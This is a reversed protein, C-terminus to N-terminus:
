WLKFFLDQLEDIVMMDINLFTNRYEQLLKSYSIGGSKGTVHQLFDETSTIANTTTINDTNSIDTNSENDYKTQLNDTRTSDGTENTANTLYRMEDVNTLGGQPTDSYKNWDDSQTNQTGTYRRTSDDTHETSGTFVDRKTGNENSSNDKDHTTTLDVDYLPNFELLESRYLQNYYPMIENMTAELRLKWLGYTEESIERTYYHRLIKIELPLRYNEDFIPFNFSFVYPAATQIILGTDNYGESETLGAHNECIFRLETTYKSM